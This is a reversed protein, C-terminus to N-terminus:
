IETTSPSSTTGYQHTECHPANPDHDQVQQARDPLSGDDVDDEDSENGSPTDSISRLSDPCEYRWIQGKTRVEARILRRSSGRMKYRARRSYEINQKSLSRNHDFSEANISQGFRSTERTAAIVRGFEHGDSGNSASSYSRSRQELKVHCSSSADTQRQGNRKATFHTVVKKIVKQRANPKRLPTDKM